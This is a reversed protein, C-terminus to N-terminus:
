GKKVGKGTPNRPLDTPQGRQQRIDRATELLAELHPRGGSSEILKRIALRVVDNISRDHSFAMARLLNYEDEPLRVTLARLQDSGGQVM